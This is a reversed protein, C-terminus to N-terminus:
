KEGTSTFKNAADFAARPGLALADFTLAGHVDGLGLLVHLARHM